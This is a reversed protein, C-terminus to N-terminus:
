AEFDVTINGIGGELELRNSGSGITTDGSIVRNEVEVRGIGQEAHITYDDEDGLVTLYLAGIGATIECNGTLAAAVDGEGLGMEFSLDNLKGNHIVIQGAGGEIDAKDTVTLDQFEAMGAGLEMNLKRCSLQEADIRGAGTTINAKTFVMEEPIYITLKSGDLDSIHSKEKIVLTGNVEEATIYPNDTEVYLEDGVVIRIDAAGIEMDLIQVDDSFVGSFASDQIEVTSERNNTWSTVGAIVSFLGFVGSAISVILFAGFAIALYKIIKQMTTM